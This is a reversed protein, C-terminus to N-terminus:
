CRQKRLIQAKGFDNRGTKPNLCHLHSGFDLVPPTRSGHQKMSSSPIYEAQAQRARCIALLFYLLMAHALLGAEYPVSSRTSPM